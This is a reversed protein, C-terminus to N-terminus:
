GHQSNDLEPSVWITEHAACPIKRWLVVEFGHKGSSVTTGWNRHDEPVKFEIRTAVRSKISKKGAKEKYPNWNRPVFYLTMENDCLMAGEYEPWHETTDIHLIFVGETKSMLTVTNIPLNGITVEFELM